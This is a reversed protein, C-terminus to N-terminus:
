PLMQYCRFTQHRPTLLRLPNVYVNPINTGRVVNGNDSKVVDFDIEGWTVLRPWGSGLVLFPKILNTCSQLRVSYHLLSSGRNLMHYKLIKIQGRHVQGLNTSIAGHSWYNIIWTHLWTASAMNPSALDDHLLKGCNNNIHGRRWPWPGPWDVLVKRHRCVHVYVGVHKQQSRGFHHNNEPKVYWALEWAKGLAIWGTL